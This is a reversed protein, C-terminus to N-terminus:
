LFLSNLKPLSGRVLNRLFTTSMLETWIILGVALVEEGIYNSSLLILVLCTQRRTWVQSLQCCCCYLRGRWRHTPFEVILLIRHRGRRVPSNQWDNVFLPRHFVSPVQNNERLSIGSCLASQPRRVCRSGRSLVRCNNWGTILLISVAHIRLCGLWGPDIQM